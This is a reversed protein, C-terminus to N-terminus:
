TTVQDKTIVNDTTWASPRGGSTTGGALSLILTQETESNVIVTADDPMSTFTLNMNEKMSDNITFNSINLLKLSTCNWFTNDLSEVLSTNFSSLDLSTLSTCDTFMISMDTVQSTNFSSLNISVLKSCGDFMAYMDTVNGTNFNSVDLSTLSSCKSFMQGMDTVQSTNFNSLDLSTLSSCGSFVSGMSTVQSTDFSSLDISTLSTCNYFMRSMDTVQSTNFSSLNISTLKSCEYFMSSMSTVQSTDFNSLDLSTLSTCYSFMGLMSDYNYTNVVNKTNINEFNINKVMSFGSFMLSSDAPFFTTGESAVYMTYYQTETGDDATVVEGNELWGYVSGGSKTTDTLDAKYTAAEYRSAIEDSQMNVFNIETIYDDRDYLEDPWFMFVGYGNHYSGTKGLYNYPLSKENFDGYVGVKVSAYYNKYNSAPYDANPNTDSIMVSDSLWVRLQYTKLFDTTNNAVKDVWIRKANIDTFSMADVLYTETGDTGIEILDFVLDSAEFRTKGDVSEGENLLVEYWIDKNTTTNRGDITFTVTNDTRARAEEVTEPFVNTLTVMGGTEDMNLYIDGAILDRNAGQMYYNFFAFSVGILAILILGIFIFYKKKNNM